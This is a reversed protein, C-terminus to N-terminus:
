EDGDPNQHFRYRENITVMIKQKLDNMIQSRTVHVGADDAANNKGNM